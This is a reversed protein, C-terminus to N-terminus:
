SCAALVLIAEITLVWTNLRIIGGHFQFLRSFCATYFSTVFGM